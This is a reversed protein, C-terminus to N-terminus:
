QSKKIMMYKRNLVYKKISDANYKFQNGGKKQHSLIKNRMIVWEHSSVCYVQIDFRKSPTIWKARTTGGRQKGKIRKSILFKEAIQQQVSRNKTKKQRSTYDAVAENYRSHFKALKPILTDLCVNMILLICFNVFSPNCRVSLLIPSIFSIKAAMSMTFYPEHM